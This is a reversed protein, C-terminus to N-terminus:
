QNFEFEKDSGLPSVERRRDGRIELKWESGAMNQANENCRSWV